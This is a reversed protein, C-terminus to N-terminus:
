SSGRSRCGPWQPDPSVRVTLSDHVSVDFNFDAGAAIGVANCCFLATGVTHFEVTGKGQPSQCRSYWHQFFYLPVGPQFDNGHHTRAGSPEAVVGIFLFDHEGFGLVKQFVTGITQGEPEQIGIAADIQLVGSLHHLENVPVPSCRHEVTRNVHCRVDIRRHLHENVQAHVTDQGAPLLGFGQVPRVDNRLKLFDITVPDLDQWAAADIGAIRCLDQFLGPHALEM